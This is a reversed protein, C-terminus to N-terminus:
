PSDTYGLDPDPRQDFLEAQPPARAAAVQPPETPLGLHALIEKIPKRETLFAVVRRKGGCNTCVLLDHAFM